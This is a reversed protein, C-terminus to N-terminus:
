GFLRETLFDMVGRLEVMGVGKLKDPDTNLLNAVMKRAVGVGGDKDDFEKGLEEMKSLQEDTLEAVVTTFGNTLKIEVSKEEMFAKGDFVQM